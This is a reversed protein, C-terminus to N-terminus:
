SDSRISQDFRGAGISEFYSTTGLVELSGTLLSDNTAQTMQSRRIVKPSLLAVSASKRSGQYLLQINTYERTDRCGRGAKWGSVHAM